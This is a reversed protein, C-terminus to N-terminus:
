TSKGMGLAVGAGSVFWVVLLVIGDERSGEISFFCVISVCMFFLAVMLGYWVYIQDGKLRIYNMFNM